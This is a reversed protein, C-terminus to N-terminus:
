GRVPDLTVGQAALANWILADRGYIDDRFEIQGKASTLATRYILHVPVHTELDVRTETGSRLKSQFFSEPDDVEPALLAYAFDFPDQLRVCGHSFARVNRQFLSKSPTDHLYINNKNPFMFKVLGLANSNSPPQKMVFPFNARTFQRWDVADRPVIRGQSDMINLQSDANPNQQLKPLYENVVISRPVHWTPNIMLYEMEDSFEPTERDAGKAGIVARTQFTVQDFDVIRASFDTLNVLVHRDGRPMNLWREREMAVVISQLRETVPVNIQTITAPGAVGDQELGMNAQFAAVAAQMTADYTATVSMGLYGMAALRDRLAIVERGSDGPRLIEAHVQPGYGGSDVMAQMQFKAKMLGLYEATQPPLTRVFEAPDASQIGDLYYAAPRVPAERLIGPVVKDPALIGTALDGALDLYIRSLAIEMRALDADTQVGQMRAILADANYKGEPLGHATATEMGAILAARRQMATTDTGTWIPAFDRARYYAALDTDASVAEAFALKRPTM